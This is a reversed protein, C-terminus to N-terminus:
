TEVRRRVKWFTHKDAQDSSQNSPARWTSGVPTIAQKIAPNISQRISQKAGAMDLNGTHHGAQNSSQKISQKAGAM